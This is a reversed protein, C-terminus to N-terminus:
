LLSKVWTIGGPARGGEERAVCPGGGGGGGVGDGMEGEGLVGGGGKFV